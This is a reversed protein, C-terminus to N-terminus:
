NKLRANLKIETGSLAVSVPCAKKTQEAIEKFKAEAALTAKDMSMENLTGQTKVVKADKYTEIRYLSTDANKLIDNLAKEDAKSLKPGVMTIRDKGIMVKGTKEQAIGVGVLVFAIGIAGVICILVKPTKM